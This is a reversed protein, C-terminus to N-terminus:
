RGRLFAVLDQHNDPTVGHGDNYTKFTVKAGLTEFYEKSEEGWHPPIIYDYAGHSIFINLHAVTHQEYDMKVFDPVYGSLAVVGRIMSGMTLALSQALVAGQSFGLVYIQDEDLGFEVIAEQIFSQITTLVEDFEARIPKGEEEITFFTYDPYLVIPGRLSFIHHSGKFDQVLQPLDEENSGMGHLLFIAPQKDATTEPVTHIFTLPSMM